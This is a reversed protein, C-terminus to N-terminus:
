EAESTADEVKVGQSVALILADQTAVEASFTARAVHNVAQARNSARVLRVDGAGNTVAYIRNTAM